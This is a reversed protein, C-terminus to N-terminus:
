QWHLRNYKEPLNKVFIERDEFEKPTYGSGTIKFIQKVNKKIQTDSLGLKRQEKVKQLVDALLPNNSLASLIDKSLELETTSAEDTSTSM